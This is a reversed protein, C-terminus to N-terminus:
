NEICHKLSNLLWNKTLADRVYPAIRALTMLMVLRMQVPYMREIQVIAAPYHHKCLIKAKISLSSPAHRFSWGYVFDQKLKSVDQLPSDLYTDLFDILTIGSVTDLIINSLTLDGHCPGVPFLLEDPLKSVVDISTNILSQLEPDATAEAVSMLKRKFLLTETLVEKSDNIEAYLLTSLANSLTRGVNRTAHVAFMHGTMGEVYPMLLEARDSLLKFDLVEAAVVRGNAAYFPKFLRQKEVNRRARNIDNRFIKQVCILKNWRVIELTDNSHSSDNLNIM